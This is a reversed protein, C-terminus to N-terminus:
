ILTVPTQNGQRPPEHSPPAPKGAMTTYSQRLAPQALTSAGPFGPYGGGSLSATTLENCSLPHHRTPHCSTSLYYLQDSYLSDCVILSAIWMLSGRLFEFPASCFCAWIRAVFYILLCMVFLDLATHCWGPLQFSSMSVALNLICWDCSHQQFSVM